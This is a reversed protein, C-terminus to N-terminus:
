SLEQFLVLKLAGLKEHSRASAEEEEELSSAKSTKCGTCSHWPKIDAQVMNKKKEKGFLL